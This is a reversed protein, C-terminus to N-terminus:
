KVRKWTQVQSAYDGRLTLPIGLHMLASGSMQCEGCAYLGDSCLGRMRFRPMARDWERMGHGFTFVTFESKDRKMYELVLYPHEKASAIRYVYSDQLAGRLAKFQTVAAKIEELEEESCTLLNIGISMSGTMGMHARFAFPAERQSIRCLPPAINGAGGATKPVFLTSFGEQLLMCDVADANDSRNTRDAYPLMGFDARGGGAACNELLLNPFRQNLTEWIYQINEMNKIATGNGLANRCSETVERNMDWKLYDLNLDTILASLWDIVWDRVETRSMDLIYQDKALTMLPEEHCLVWDKHAQYLRSNPNVMEPEVWLGFLMGANHVAEAVVGLGKPFRAPDAVWDGLGAKTDTRGVMWGDDVVYLEAGVYKAKPIFDILKKEDIDFQYPYWTNYIIPRVAHAKDTTGKPLLYDYEWDYLIESMQSFGKAAYGITMPPTEFSEHTALPYRASFDSVGATVSVGTECGFTYLKEIAIQFDGSWGLVGFFVEGDTETSQGNEDLAFFPVQHMAAATLRNTELQIKSQTLMTQQKQYEAGWGGAYHTLRYDRSLPLHVAGSKATNLVLTEKGKNTIKASRTVLPLEDWLKYTLEVALDEFADELRISLVNGSISHGAYKLRLTERGNGFTVRLCPSSYDFATQIGYEERKLRGNTVGMRQKSQLLDLYDLDEQLPMGWHLHVLRGDESIAFAYEIKQNLIRFLGYNENFRIEM